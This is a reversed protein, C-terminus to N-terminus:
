FQLESLPRLLASRTTSHPESDHDTLVLSQGQLQLAKRSEGVHKHALWGKSPLFFFYIYIKHFPVFKSVSFLHYRCHIKNVFKAAQKRIKSLM